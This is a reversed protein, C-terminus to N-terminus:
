FDHLKQLKKGQKEIKNEIQVLRQNISYGKLLYDKLVQNAWQRFKTANISNVRYGVFIIVDLNYYGVDRMVKRNGETQLQANKACTALEDLEATKYINKIAVGIIASTAQQRKLFYDPFYGLPSLM